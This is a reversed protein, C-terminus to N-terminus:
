RETRGSPTTALCVSAWVTRGRGTGDTESGWARAVKDVLFMGHGTPPAGVAPGEDRVEVRVGRAFVRATCSVVSSETRLVANTVLESVVLEAMDRVEHPLDGDRLQARLLHRAVAVSDPRRPLAHTYAAPLGEMLEVPASLELPRAARQQHAVQEKIRAM